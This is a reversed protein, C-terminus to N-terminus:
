KWVPANSVVFSGELELGLKWDVRMYCITLTLLRFNQKLNMTLIIDMLEWSSALQSLVVTLGNKKNIKKIVRKGRCINVNYHVCESVFDGLTAPICKGYKKIKLHKKHKFVDELKNIKKSEAHNSCMQKTITTQRPTTQSCLV